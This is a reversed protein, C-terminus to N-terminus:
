PAQRETEMDEGDNFQSNGHNVMHRDFNGPKVFKAPCHPCKLLTGTISTCTSVLFMLVHSSKQAIFANTHGNEPIFAYIGM